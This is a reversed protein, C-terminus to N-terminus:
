KIISGYESWANLYTDKCDTPVKVSLVSNIAYANNKEVYCKFVYEGLAPPTVSKVVLERLNLCNVFAYDKIATVTSPLDIRSATSYAFVFPDIEKVNEGVTITEIKKSYFAMESIKTVPYVTGGIEIESKVVVNVLPKYQANEEGTYDTVAVYTDTKGNETSKFLTYVVGNEDTVSERVVTAGNGACGVCLTAIAILLCVVLFVIKKKM